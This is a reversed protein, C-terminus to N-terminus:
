AHGEMALDLGGNETCASVHPVLARAHKEVVENLEHDENETM